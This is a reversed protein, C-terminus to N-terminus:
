DLGEGIQLGNADALKRVGCQLEVDWRRAYEPQRGGNGETDAEGAWGRRQACQVRLRLVWRSRRAREYDAHPERPAHVGVRM